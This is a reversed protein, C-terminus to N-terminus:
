KKFSIGFIFKFIDIELIKSCKIKKRRLGGRANAHLLLLTSDNKMM